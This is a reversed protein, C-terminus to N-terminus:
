ELLKYVQPAQTDFHRFPQVRTNKQAEILICEKKSLSFSFISRSNFNVVFSVIELTRVHCGGFLRNSVVPKIWSAFQNIPLIIDCHSGSM